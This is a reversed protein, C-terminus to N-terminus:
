AATPRSWWLAAALACHVPLLLAVWHANRQPQIPLVLAFFAAVACGAVALAIWALWRPVARGRLVPWAAVLLGWALPNFLLLNRNAWGFEHATGFWIFLMLLSVIGCVLWLPTALAVVARLHRRAAVLIGIAALTGALLWPWWPRPAESPEPPVLHPLVQEESRVIPQGQANRVDRLAASLRMPIFAEEWRSMVRDAHPGLGVDFGTAMWWAPSALRVAESRHTNGQSGAMLQRRLGGDLARDLADRVRTSCNDEFYQYGYAANEPRANVALADAMESAKDAPLDLWQISVGRGEERYIALDQDFPLAALRYRMEGRVFRAIFDPESPDFYGFNYSTATRAEDDVVLIANHGFREWFIQGPQMTVIGIRPAAHAASWASLLVFLALLAQLAPRQGSSRARIPQLASPQDAESKSRVCGTAERMAVSVWMSRM